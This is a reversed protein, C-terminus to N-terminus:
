ALRAASAPASGTRCPGPLSAARPDAPALGRGIPQLECCPLSTRALAHPADDDLRTDNPQLDAAPCGKSMEAVQLAVAGGAIASAALEISRVAVPHIPPGQDLAALPIAVLEAEDDRGLIAVPERVQAAEGAVHHPLHFLIEAGPEVPDRDIVEVGAVRVAMDHDPAPVIQILIQDDGLVVDGIPYPQAGLFARGQFETRLRIQFQPCFKLGLDGILAQGPDIAGHHALGVM